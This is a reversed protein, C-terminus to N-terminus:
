ENRTSKERILVDCVDLFIDDNDMNVDILECIKCIEVGAKLMEIIKNVRINSFGSHIIINVLELSTKPYTKKKKRKTWYSDDITENNVNNVTQDSTSSTRFQENMVNEIDEKMTKLHEEINKYITENNNIMEKKEEVNERIYEKCLAENQKILKYIQNIAKSINNTLMDIKENVDKVDNTEAEPLIKENKIAFLDNLMPFRDEKKCEDFYKKYKSFSQGSLVISRILEVYKNARSIYKSEKMLDYLEVAKNFWEVSTTNLYIKIFEARINPPKKIIKYISDIDIGMLLCENIYNMEDQVTIMGYKNCYESFQNETYEDLDKINM